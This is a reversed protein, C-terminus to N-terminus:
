EERYVRVGLVGCVVEERCRIKVKVEKALPRLKAALMTPTQLTPIFFSEGVEMCMLAKEFDWEIM